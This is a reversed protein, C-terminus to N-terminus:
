EKTEEVENDASQTTKLLWLSYYTLIGTIGYTIVFTLACLVFMSGIAISRGIMQIILFFFLVILTFFLGVIMAVRNPDLHVIVPKNRDLLPKVDPYNLNNINNKEDKKM